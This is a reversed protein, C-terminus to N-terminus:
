LIHERAVSLSVKTVPDLVEEIAEIEVAILHEIELDRKDRYYTEKTEITPRKRDGLPPVQLLGRDQGANM